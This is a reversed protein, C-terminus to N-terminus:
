EVFYDPNSFGRFSMVVGDEACSIVYSNGSTYVELPSDCIPCRVGKYAVTKPPENDELVMIGSNIIAKEITACQENTLNAYKAM